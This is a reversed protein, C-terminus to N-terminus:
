TASIVRSFCCLARRHQHLSVFYPSVLPRKVYKPALQHKKQAKRRTIAFVPAAVLLHSYGIDKTILEVRSRPVKCYALFRKVIPGDDRSLQVCVRLCRFGRILGAGKWVELINICDFDM